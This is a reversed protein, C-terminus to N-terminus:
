QTETILWCSPPYHAREQPDLLCRSLPLHVKLRLACSCVECIHLQKERDVRIQLHNKLELHKRIVDAVGEVLGWDKSHKPCKLCTDARGQSLERDVIHGGDGIWDKLIQYGNSLKKSRERLQDFITM